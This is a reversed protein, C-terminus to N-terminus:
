RRDHERMSPKGSGRKYLGVSLEKETEHHAELWARFKAPTAFFLPKMRQSGLRISAGGDVVARSSTDAHTRESRRGASSRTM